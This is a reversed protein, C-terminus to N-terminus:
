GTIIDPYTRHFREKKNNLVKFYNDLGAIEEKFLHTQNKFPKSAQLINLFSFMKKKRKEYSRNIHYWNVPEKLNQNLWKGLLMLM